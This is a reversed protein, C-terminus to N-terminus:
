LPRRRLAVYQREALRTNRILWAHEPAEGDKARAWAKDLAAILSAETTVEARLNVYTLVEEDSEFLSQAMRDVWQPETAKVPQM